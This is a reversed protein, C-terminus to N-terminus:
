YLTHTHVSNFLDYEYTFSEDTCTIESFTKKNNYNEVELFLGGARSIDSLSHM